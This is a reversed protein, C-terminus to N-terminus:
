DENEYFRHINQSSINVSNTYTNHFLKNKKKQNIQLVRIVMHVFM